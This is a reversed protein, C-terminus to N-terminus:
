ELTSNHTRKSPTPNRKANFRFIIYAMLGLVLVTIFIELGLLVHNFSHIREAVPSAANQFDMQWPSPQGEAADAATISSAAATVLAAFFIM